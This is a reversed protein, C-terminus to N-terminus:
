LGRCSRDTQRTNQFSAVACCGPPDPGAPVDGTGLAGRVAGREQCVTRKRRAGERTAEGGEQGEKNKGM